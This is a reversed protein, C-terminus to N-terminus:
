NGNNPLKKKRKSTVFRLIEIERGNKGWVGMSLKKYGENPPGWILPDDHWIPPLLGGIHPNLYIRSIASHSNDVVFHDPIL